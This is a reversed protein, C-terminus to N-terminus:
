AERAGDQRAPQPPAGATTGPQPFANLWQRTAVTSSAMFTKVADVQREAANMGADVAANVLRKYCQAQTDFLAVV